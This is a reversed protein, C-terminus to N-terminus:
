FNIWTHLVLVLGRLGVCSQCSFLYILCFGTAAQRLYILENRVTRPNCMSGFGM